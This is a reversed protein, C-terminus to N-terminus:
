KHVVTLRTEHGAAQLGEVLGALRVVDQNRVRICGNTVSLEGQDLREIGWGSQEGRGGHIGFGSRYKVTGGSIPLFVPGFSERTSWDEDSRVWDPNGIVYEGTPTDGYLCAQGGGTGKTCCRCRWVEVGAGEPGVFAKLLGRSKVVILHLM